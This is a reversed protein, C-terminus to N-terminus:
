KVRPLSFLMIYHGIMQKTWLLYEWYVNRGSQRYIRFRISWFKCVIQFFNQSWCTWVDHPSQVYLMKVCFWFCSDKYQRMFDKMFHKNWSINTEHFTQKMFDKYQKMFNNWSILIHILITSCLPVTERVIVSNLWLSQFCTKM